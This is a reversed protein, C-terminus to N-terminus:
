GTVIRIIAAVVCYVGILAVVVPGATRNRFLDSEIRENLKPLLWYLGIAAAVLAVGLLLVAAAGSSSTAM